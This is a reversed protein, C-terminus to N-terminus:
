LLGHARLAGVVVATLYTLCFGGVLAPALGRGRARSRAAARETARRHRSLVAHCRARVRDSRAADPTAAPLRALTRSVSDDPHDATM